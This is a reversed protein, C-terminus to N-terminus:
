YGEFGYVALVGGFKCGRFESGAQIVPVKIHGFDAHSYKIYLIHLIYCAPMIAHMGSVRM